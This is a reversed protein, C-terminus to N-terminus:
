GSALAGGHKWGDLKSHHTKQRVRHDLTSFVNTKYLDNNVGAVMCYNHQRQSAGSKQNNIQCKM